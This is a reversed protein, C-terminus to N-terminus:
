SGQNAMRPSVRSQYHHVTRDGQVGDYDKIRDMILDVTSINSCFFLVMILDSGSSNLPVRIIYEEMEHYIREIIKGSSAKNIAVMLVFEIYGTLNMSSMDRIIPFEIMRHQQMKEIRRKTTKTSVSTEKAIKEIEM